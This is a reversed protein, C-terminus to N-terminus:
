IYHSKKESVCGSGDTDARSYHDNSRGAKAREEPILTDAGTRDILQADNDFLRLNIKRKNM